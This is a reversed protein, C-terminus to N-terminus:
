KRHLGSVRETLQVLQRDIACAKRDKKKKDIQTEHGLQAPLQNRVM